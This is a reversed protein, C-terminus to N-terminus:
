GVTVVLSWILIRIVMLKGGSSVIRHRRRFGSPFRIVRAKILATGQVDEQQVLTQMTGWGRGDWWIFVHLCFCKNATPTLPLFPKYFLYTHTTAVSSCTLLCCFKFFLFWCLATVLEFSSQLKTIVDCHPMEKSFRAPASIICKINECFPLLTVSHTDSCKVKNFTGYNM